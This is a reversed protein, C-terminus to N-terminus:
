PPASISRKSTMRRVPAQIMLPAASMAAPVPQAFCRGHLGHRHMGMYINLEHATLKRVVPWPPEPLWQLIRDRIQNSTHYFGCAHFMREAEVDAFYTGITQALVLAWKQLDFDSSRTSVHERVMAAHVHEKFDKFVHVDLPQILGTLHGPILLIQWRFRRIKRVVKSTLHTTACDLVLVVQRYGTDKVVNHLIDLYLLISETNFWGRGAEPLLCRVTAPLDTHSAIDKWRKRNGKANPLLVQPLLRQTVRCNCVSAMLTCHARRHRMSAVTASAQPTRPGGGRKFGLRDSMHYPVATEDINIWLGTRADHGTAKLYSIWQFFNLVERPYICRIDIGCGECGKLARFPRTFGGPFVGKSVTGPKPIAAVKPYRNQRGFTPVHNRKGVIKEFPSVRLHSVNTYGSKAAM